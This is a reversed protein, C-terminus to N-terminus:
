EKRPSAPVMYRRLEEALAAVTLGSSLGLM